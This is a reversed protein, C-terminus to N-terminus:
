LLLKHTIEWSITSYLRRLREAFTESKATNFQPRRFAYVVVAIRRKHYIKIAQERAIIGGQVKVWVENIFSLLLDHKLVFQLIDCM